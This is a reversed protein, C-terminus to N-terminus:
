SPANAARWALTCELTALPMLMEPQFPVPAEGDAIKRPLAPDGIAGKAISVFDAEGRQLVGQAADPDHLSGCAIAPLGSFDRALGALSRGSGFVQDGAQRTTLHIYDAGAKAIASFITRADGAGGAWQHEFNNIKGQSLRVGAVGGGVASKVAAMVAGPLRMRNEMSGGYDDTRLNTYDTLFEDLLYGNANHVEVGDFGAAIANRAAQGHSDIIIEIANRSLEVPVIYPGSGGYRPSKEGLPLVASPALPPAGFTNTALLAGTHMLQLLIQCGKEHVADTVRRWGDIQAQNAIGPQTPFCQSSTLDTYTGEAIVLGFGGAAFAAYHDRMLAGPVGNEDASIRAMPAVVFRNPLEMAGLRGPEFLASFKDKSM